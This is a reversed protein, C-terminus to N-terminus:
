KAPTRGDAGACGRPGPLPSRHTSFCLGRCERSSTPLLMRMAVSRWHSCFQHAEHRAAQLTGDQMESHQEECYMYPRHAITGAKLVVKCIGHRGKLEMIRDTTPMCCHVM